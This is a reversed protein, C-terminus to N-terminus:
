LKEETQKSASVFIFRYCNGLIKFAAKGKKNKDPYLHSVRPRHLQPFFFSYCAASYSFDSWFFFFFYNIKSTSKFVKVLFYFFACILCSVFWIVVKGRYSM